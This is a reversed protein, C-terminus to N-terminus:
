ILCLELLTAQIQTFIAEIESHCRRQQSAIEHASYGAARMRLLQRQEHSLHESIEAWLSEADLQEDWYDPDNTIGLPMLRGDRELLAELSVTKARRMPRRQSQYHNHLDCEMARWAITSFAYQRRLDERLLYKQVARLYGFVIVDYYDDQRLKKENLFTYILNHHDEAFRQQERTLEHLKM